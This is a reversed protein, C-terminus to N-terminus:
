EAVIGANSRGEFFYYQMFCLSDESCNLSRYPIFVWLAQRM